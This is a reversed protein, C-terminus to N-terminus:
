GDKGAADIAALVTDDDGLQNALLLTLTMLFKQADAPDRDGLANVLAEYVKDGDSLRLDKALDDATM